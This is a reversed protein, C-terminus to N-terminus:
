RMWVSAMLACSMGGLDRGGLGGEDIGVLGVEQVDGQEALGGLLPALGVGFEVSIHAIVRCDFLKQNQDVEFAHIRLEDVHFQRLAFAQFPEVLDGDALHLCKGCAGSEALKAPVRLLLWSVASSQSVGSGFCVRRSVVSFCSHAAM